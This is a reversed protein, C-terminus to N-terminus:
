STAEFPRIEGGVAKRAAREFAARDGTGEIPLWRVGRASELRATLLRVLDRFQRRDIAGTAARSAQLPKLAEVHMRVGHQIATRQTDALEVYAQRSLERDHDNMISFATLTVLLGTGM